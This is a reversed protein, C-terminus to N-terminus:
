PYEPSPVLGPETGACTEAEVGTGTWTLKSATNPDLSIEPSLVSRGAPSIYSVKFALPRPPFPVRGTASVEHPIPLGDLYVLYRGEEYPGFSWHLHGERLNVQVSLRTKSVAGGTPVRCRMRDLAAARRRLSDVPAGQLCRCRPEYVYVKGGLNLAQELDKQSAIFFDSRCHKGTLREQALCFKRGLGSVQVIDAQAPLMIFEDGDLTSVGGYIAQLLWPDHTQQSQQHSVSVGLTSAIVAAGAAVGAKKRPELLGVAYGLLLSIVFWPLFLYRSPSDLLGRGTLVWLPLAVAAISVAFLPVARLRLNHTLAALAVITAGTLVLTAPSLLPSSYFLNALFRVLEVAREETAVQLPAYAAALNGLVAVRWGLYFVSVIAFPTVDLLRERFGREGLFFLIAPLPTYIEKCACALLYLTASTWLASRSRLRLYRIFSLTALGAFFLGYAYHGSMLENAVIRTPFGSIFVLGATLGAIVGAVRCILAFSIAACASIVILLHGYHMAPRDGGLALGLDYFLANWPTLHIGSQARTVEPLLFYQWPAYRTVFELHSGDDFRWYASFVDIYLCLTYSLM